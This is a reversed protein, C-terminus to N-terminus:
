RIPLIIHDHDHIFVNIHVNIAIQGEIQETHPEPQLVIACAARGVRTYFGCEHRAPLCVAVGVIVAPRVAVGFYCLVARAVRVPNVADARPWATM